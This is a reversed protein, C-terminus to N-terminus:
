PRPWDTDNTPRFPRRNFGPRPLKATLSGSSADVHARLKGLRQDYQAMYDRANAHDRRRRCADAIAGLEIVDHFGTPIENPIDEDNTMEVPIASYTITLTEATDPTPELMLLGGSYAYSRIGVSTPAFVRLDRIQNPTLEIAPVRPDEDVSTIARIGNVDELGFDDVMSYDGQDAVLTVDATATLLRLRTVVEAYRRNILRKITERDTNVHSGSADLVANQLELFSTM